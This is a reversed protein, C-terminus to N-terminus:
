WAGLLKGIILTIMNLPVEMGQGTVLTEGTVFGIQVGLNTIFPALWSTAIWIYSIIVASSVLIKFIDGKAFLSSACTFYIYMGMGALPFYDIPLIFALAIAIPIMPVACAVGAEDGFCIAVDMGINIEYKDGLKKHFYERAASAIPTLGEMLISVMRPLLVIAASLTVSMTLADALPLRAIVALVIGLIFTLISTEGLGGIKNNLWDVNIKIKNIGPIKDLLWCVVASIPWVYTLFDITTCTTGELGYYKQWYPAILDGLKLSIVSYLLAILLAVIVAIVQPVGLPLMINYAIVGGLVFSIYNWIDVNMTKTFRIKILIFNLVLAIPIVLLVFPSSWSISALGEWGVDIVTFGGGNDTFYTIVPTVATTLLGVITNMGILGIGIRLGNRLSDFFKIGFFLGLFAILFPLMISGGLNMVFEIIKMIIQM